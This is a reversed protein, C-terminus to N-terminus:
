EYKLEYLRNSNKFTIIKNVEDLSVFVSKGFMDFKDSTAPLETGTKSLWFGPIMEATLDDTSCGQSNRVKETMLFYTLYFDEGEGYLAWTPDSHYGEGDIILYVWSHDASSFDDVSIAEVGAQLLLYTYIGAFNDCVGKKNMFTYYTYGMGKESGSEYVYNSEIYNYIKLCKEFETDDPELNENLVDEIFKEFRKERVALENPTIGNYYIRGVGNEFPVTGDDGSGKIVVSAAPLMNALTTASLCWDYAEKSACEFTDKGSRIADCLNYLSDWWEQPYLDALIDSHLHPNFEYKLEIVPDDIVPAETVTGSVLDTETVPAAPDTVITSPIETGPAPVVINDDNNVTKEVDESATTSAPAGEKGCGALMASFTIAFAVILSIVSFRVKMFCIESREM